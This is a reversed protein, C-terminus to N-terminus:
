IRDGLLLHNLTGHLSRLFADRDDRYEADSVIAAADYLRENCWSNYGAFM